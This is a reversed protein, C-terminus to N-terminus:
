KEKIKSVIVRVLKSQTDKNIDQVESIKIDIENHTVEKFKSELEKKIKDVSPGINRQKEDIIIKVEVLDIRHQIIQFQKIKFTDLKDMVSAPITTVKFPAIKEGSPLHIFEMIRGHIDKIMQLTTVSCCNNPEISTVIDDIGSYRIFPTDFGYLRTVVLKGPKNYGVDEGNEDLFEMHVFDSNVHFGKSELCQFAMPGAETSNYNDFIKVGFAKEVYNRTYKDLMASGSYLWKPNIYDLQGNYKLSALQRLMNPDTVLYEPDFKKIKELIDKFPDGVHLYLINDTKMFKSIFPNLANDYAAKEVSGEKMDVILCIRSKNWIAGTPKLSRIGGITLKIATLLSYYCFIPKGSSGSTSVLYSYKKDFKKPIIRDPYSDRVDNKTIIPLKKIDKIGNIDNPYVGAKKYKDHYMPVTYAYKVMKRFAKDQFKELKKPSTNWVRDIDTLYSKLLKSLFIPNRYPNM